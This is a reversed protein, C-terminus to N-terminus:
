RYWGATKAEQWIATCSEEKFHEHVNLVFDFDLSGCQLWFSERVGTISRIGVM